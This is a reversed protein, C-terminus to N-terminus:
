YCEVLDQKELVCPVYVGNLDDARLCYPRDIFKFLLWNSWTVELSVVHTNGTCAARAETGLISTKFPLSPPAWELKVCAIYVNM